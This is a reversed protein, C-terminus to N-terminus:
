PSIVVLATDNRLVDRMDRPLAYYWGIVERRQRDSSTSIGPVAEYLEPHTWAGYIIGMFTMVISGVDTPDALIPGRRIGNESVHVIPACECVVLYEAVLRCVTTPLHVADVAAVAATIKDSIALKERYTALLADLLKSIDFEGTMRTITMRPIVAPTARMPDYVAWRSAYYTTLFEDFAIFVGRRLAVVATAYHHRILMSSPKGVYTDDPAIVQDLEPSYAYLTPPNWDIYPLMEDTIMAAPPRCAEDLMEVTKACMKPTGLQRLIAAIARIDAAALDALQMYTAM